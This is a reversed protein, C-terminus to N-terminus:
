ADFTINQKTIQDGDAINVTGISMSGQSWNGDADFLLQRTDSAYALSSGTMGLSRIDALSGVIVGLQSDPPGDIVYLEGQRVGFLAGKTEWLEQTLSGLSSSLELHDGGAGGADFGSITDVQGLAVGGQTYQGTQWLQQQQEAGLSAWFAPDALAQAFGTSSTADLAAGANSKVFTDTSSIANSTILNRGFGGDIINGGGEGITILDNGQGANINNNLAYTLNITDVGGGGGLFSLGTAGDLNVLTNAAATAITTDKATGYVSTTGNAAVINSKLIGSFGTTNPTIGYIITNGQGIIQTDAIGAVRADPISGLTSKAEGTGVIMTSGLGTTISSQNIGIAQV